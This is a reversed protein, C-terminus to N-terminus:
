VGRKARELGALARDIHGESRHALGAVTRVFDAVADCQEPSLLSIREWWFPEQHSALHWIIKDPIEGAEHPHNLSALMFAPLYYRHAAPTFM